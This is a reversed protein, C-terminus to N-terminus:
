SLIFLSVKIIKRCQFYQPLYIDLIEAAYSWVVMLVVGYHVIKMTQKCNKKEVRM